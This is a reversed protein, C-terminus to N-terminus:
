PRQYIAILVENQAIEVDSLDGIRDLIEQKPDLEAPSKLKQAAGPM